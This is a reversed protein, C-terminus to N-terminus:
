LFKMKIYNDYLVESIDILDVQKRKNKELLKLNTYENVQVKSFKKKIDKFSLNTIIEIGIDYVKSKKDFLYCFPLINVVYKKEIGIEEFLEILIQDTFNIKNKTKQIKLDLGGSPVLEWSSPNQLCTDSRKGIVIGDNCVLIGSVALPQIKIKKLLRPNKIKAYFFKYEIIKLTIKSNSIIDVSLIKGNSGSYKNNKQYENWINDIIKLEDLTINLEFNTISTNVKPNFEHVSIM